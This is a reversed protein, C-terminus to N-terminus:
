FRVRCVGNQIEAIMDFEAFNVVFYSQTTPASLNVETFCPSNLTNIGSMLLSDSGHLNDTALAVFFKNEHSNVDTAVTPTLFESADICGKSYLSSPDNHFALLSQIFFEPDDTIPRAPILSAGIRTIYSNIIKPRSISSYANGTSINDLYCSILTKLSSYRANILHVQTGTSGNAITGTYDRYATSHLIISDDINSMVMKMATESLEVYETEFSINSIQINTDSLANDFKLAKLATALTIEIRADGGNRLAWIPFYKDALLGYIPSMVPICYTKANTPSVADGESTGDDKQGNFNSYAIKEDTSVKSDYLIHYLVGYNSLSSLLNGGSFEEVREILSNATSNLHVNTATGGTKLVSFKLYCNPNVLFANKRTPISFRITDGCNFSTGSDPSLSHRYKRVPAHSSKLVNVQLNSDISQTSVPNDNM